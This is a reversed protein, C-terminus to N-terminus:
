PLLGLLHLIAALVCVGAFIMLCDAIFRIVRTKLHEQGEPLGVPTGHRMNSDKAQSLSFGSLPDRNPRITIGFAASPDLFM